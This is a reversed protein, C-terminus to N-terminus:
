TRTVGTRRIGQTQRVRCDAPCADIILILGPVNHIPGGGPPTADWIPESQGWGPTQHSPWVCPLFNTANAGWMGGVLPLNVIVLGSSM